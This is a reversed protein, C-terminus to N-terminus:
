HSEHWGTIISRFNSIPKLGITCFYIHVLMFLSLVFGLIVHVIDTVLIGSTGFMRHIVLEPFLLGWGTLILLPVGLYMALVYSFKQLPNFKREADIPFPPKEGSFIGVTYYMFQKKLRGGLGKWELRYHKGNRTFLNGLFFILYNFSLIIGSINHMKVSIDFPIFPYDPNSYQMSLGTLILVLFLLANVGHWIRIFVPYHYITSM